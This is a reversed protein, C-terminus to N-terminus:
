LYTKLGEKLSKLRVGPFLQYFPALNLKVDMTIFDVAKPSLPPTSLFQLPWAAFKVLFKPIPLLPRKKKLVKLVQQMMEKFTLAEPGGLDFCFNKRSTNSVCAGVIASLDRIFIPQVHNGGGGILPVVPLCRIQAILRNLSKDGPGYVWSPRMITSPIKTKRIVEEAHWKAQFWPEKREGNTGGGSIYIIRKVGAQKCALALNETGRADVNWYTWGRRPNEVPHGPFQACQIVVEVGAVAPPLTELKTVDGPVIEVPIAAFIAGARQPSHSLIRVIHGAELVSKAIAQGM